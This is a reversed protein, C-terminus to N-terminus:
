ESTEFLKKWGVLKARKSNLVDKQKGPDLSNFFDNSKLELMYKDIDNKEKEIKPKYDFFESTFDQRSHLGAIQYILWKCKSEEENKPQVFLYYFTLYNELLCRQMIYTSSLDFIYHNLNFIKSTFKTGRLLSNLNFSQYIYKFALTESYGKYLEAKIKKEFLTNTLFGLIDLLELHDSLVVSFEDESWNSNNLLNHYFIKNM